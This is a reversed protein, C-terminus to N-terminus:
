QTRRMQIYHVIYKSELFHKIKEFRDKGLKNQIFETFLIKRNPSLPTRNNFITDVFSFQKPKVKDTPIKNQDKEKNDQKEKKDDNVKKMKPSDEEVPSM